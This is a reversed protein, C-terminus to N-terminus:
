FSTTKALKAIVKERFAPDKTYRPDKMDQTMQARSEYGQASGPSGAGGVIVNPGSGATKIYKGQLSEVAMKQTSFDGSAMSRNFAAIDEAPLNTAAWGILTQYEGEGGVVGHVKAVQAVARAEQGAIYDDVM